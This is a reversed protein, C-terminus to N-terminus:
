FFLEVCNLLDSHEVVTLLNGSVDLTILNSLRHINGPLQDILNRALMLQECTRLRSVLSVDRLKNGSLNLVKVFPLDFFQSPLSSISNVDAVFTELRQLRILSGYFCAVYFISLM